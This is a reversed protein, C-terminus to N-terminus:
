KHWYIAITKGCIRDFEESIMRFGSEMLIKEVGYHGDEFHTKYGSTWVFIHNSDKRGWQLHNDTLFQYATQNSM